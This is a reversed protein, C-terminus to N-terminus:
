IEFVEGPQLPHFEIGLPKYVGEAIEYLRKLFFEKIFGDHIPIVYKPKVSTGIKMSQTFSGWSAMLPLALIEPAKTLSNSFSFSDGVHILRENILFGISKKPTIGGANEEHPARIGEISFGAINKQEGESLVHATIKEAALKKVVNEDALIEVESRLSVFAKIADIDCHDGHEHTILIVDVAGIDEVKIKHEKFTYTGPDILLRKGNEEILLCSHFYKQIKM